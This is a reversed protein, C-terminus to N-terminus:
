LSLPRIKKFFSKMNDLEILMYIEDSYGIILLNGFLCFGENLKALTLAKFIM